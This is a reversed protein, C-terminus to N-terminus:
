GRRSICRPSDRSQQPGQSGCACRHAGEGRGSSAGGRGVDVGDSEAGARECQGRRRVRDANAGRGRQRKQRLDDASDRRHRDAHESQRGVEATVARVRRKRQHLGSVAADNQFRQCRERGRGRRAASRRNRSRESHAAWLLATSGDSARAKVDAHQSVLTRVMKVDHNRAAEVLRSDVAPTATTAATASAVVMLLTLPLTRALRSEKSYFM